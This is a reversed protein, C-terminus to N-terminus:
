QAPAAEVAIWLALDSDGGSTGGSYSEDDNAGSRVLMGDPPRVASVLGVM